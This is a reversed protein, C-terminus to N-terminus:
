KDGKEALDHKSISPMIYATFNSIFKLEGNIKKLEAADEKNDPDVAEMKPAQFKVVFPATKSAKSIFNYNCGENEYIEFSKTIESLVDFMQSNLLFSEPHIGAELDIELKTIDIPHLGAGPMPSIKDPSGDWVTVRVGSFGEFEITMSNTEFDQKDLYMGRDISLNNFNANIHAQNLKPLHFPKLNKPWPYNPDEYRLLFRGNTATLRVNGDENKDFYIRDHENWGFRNSDECVAFLANLVQPLVSIGNNIFYSMYEKFEAKQEPTVGTNKNSTDTM